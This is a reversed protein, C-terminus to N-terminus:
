KVHTTSTLLACLAIVRAGSPTAEAPLSHATQACTHSCCIDTPALSVYYGAVVTQWRQKFIISSIYSWEPPRSVFLPSFCSEHRVVILLEVGESTDVL